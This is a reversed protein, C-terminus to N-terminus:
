GSDGQTELVAIELPVKVVERDTSQSKVGADKMFKSGLADIVIIGLVLFCDELDITHPLIPGGAYVVLM